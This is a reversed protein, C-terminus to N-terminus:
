LQGFPTERRLGDSELLDAPLCIQWPLKTKKHGLSYIQYANPHHAYVLPFADRPAWMGSLIEAQHAVLYRWAASPIDTVQGEVLSAAVNKEANELASQWRAEYSAPDDIKWQELKLTAQEQHSEVDYLDYLRAEGDEVQLWHDFSLARALKKLGAIYTHTYEVPCLNAKRARLDDPVLQVKIGHPYIAALSAILRALQIFALYEALDPSQRHDCCNVNKLPGFALRFLLPKRDAHMASVYDLFPQTNEPRRKSFALSGVKEILAEPITKRRVLRLAWDPVPVEYLGREPSSKATWFFHRHFSLADRIGEILHSRTYNIDPLLMTQKLSFTM